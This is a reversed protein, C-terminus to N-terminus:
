LEDYYHAYDITEMGIKSLNDAHNVNVFQGDKWKAMITGERTYCFDVESSERVVKFLKRRATTLDEYIVVRESFTPNDKVRQNDKLM